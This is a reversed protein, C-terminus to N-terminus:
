DGQRPGIHGGCTWLQQDQCWAAESSIARLRRRRDGLDGDVRHARGPNHNKISRGVEVPRPRPKDVGELLQDGISSAQDALLKFAEPARSRAPTLSSKSRGPVIRLDVYADARLQSVWPPLTLSTARSLESTSSAHQDGCGRAM